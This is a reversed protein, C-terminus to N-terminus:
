AKKAHRTVIDNLLLISEYQFDKDLGELELFLLNMNEATTYTKGEEGARYFFDNKLSDMKPKDEGEAKPCLNVSYAGGKVIWPASQALDYNWATLVIYGEDLYSFVQEYAVETGAYGQGIVQDPALYGTGDEGMTGTLNESDVVQGPLIVTETALTSDHEREIGM